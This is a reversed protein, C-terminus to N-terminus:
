RQPRPGGPPVLLWARLRRLPGGAILARRMARRQEASPPPSGDAAYRHDRLMAAYRAVPGRGAGAVRRELELLTTGAALHWGVRDLASRLEAVQAESLDGTIRGRRRYQVVGGAIAALLVAVAILMGTSDSGSAAASGSKQFGATANHGGVAASSSSDGLIAAGRREPEAAALRQSEAPAAAPTPDFTVWGIGRFFVEVWSHADFDHVDYTGNTSNPSGPAFGSVVRSPIGLMRLMLGMSGAFQQCYGARDDFLFSELPYRHNSVDPTYAYNRRLQSEIQTVAEYPTGATATWARALRYVDAYPSRLLRRTIPPERNGWLPVALTQAPAGDTPPVGLLTASAFRSPPYRRPASQMQDVTPDPAYTVISYKSSGDLPGGSHVLTGDGSSSFSDSSIDEVALPSGAGILLSTRLGEIEFRVDQVWGPHLRNLQGTPM